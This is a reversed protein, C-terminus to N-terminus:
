DGIITVVIGNTRYLHTYKRITAVREMPSTYTVVTAVNAEVLPRLSNTSSLLVITGRTLVVRGLINSTDLVVLHTALLLSPLLLAIYRM